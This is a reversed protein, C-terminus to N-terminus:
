IEMLIVSIAGLGIGIKNILSLSENFMLVGVLIVIVLNVITFISIAKSLLEYKLSIAWLFTGTFYSILGIMLFYNRGVNAWKKFLIDGGVELITAAIILTLFTSKSSLIM